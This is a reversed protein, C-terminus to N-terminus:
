HRASAAGPAEGKGAQIACYGAMLGGCIALTIIIRAIVFSRNHDDITEFPEPQAAWEVSEGKELVKQMLDPKINMRERRKVFYSLFMNVIVMADRGTLFDSVLRAFGNVIQWNEAFVEDLAYLDQLGTRRSPCRLM